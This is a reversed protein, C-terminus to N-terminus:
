FYQESILNTGTVYGSMGPKGSSPVLPNYFLEHDIEQEM